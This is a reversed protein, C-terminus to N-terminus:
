KGKSLATLYARDVKTLIDGDFVEYSNCLTDWTLDSYLHKDENPIKPVGGYKKGLSLESYRSKIFKEAEIAEDQPMAWTEITLAKSFKTLRNAIDGTIGIKCTHKFTVYYIHYRRHGKDELAVLLKLQNSLTAQSMGLENATQVQGKSKVRAIIDKKHDLIINYYDETPEAIRKLLQSYM